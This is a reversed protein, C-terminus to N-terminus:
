QGKPRTGCLESVRTIVATKHQPNTGSTGADGEELLAVTNVSNILRQLDYGDKKLATIVCELAMKEVADQNVQTM